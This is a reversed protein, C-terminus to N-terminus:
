PAVGFSPGDAPQVMTVASKDSAKFLGILCSTAIVPSTEKVPRTKGTPPILSFTIATHLITSYKM